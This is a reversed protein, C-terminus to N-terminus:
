LREHTKVLKELQKAEEITSAVNKLDKPTGVGISLRQLNRELDFVESLQRRTRQLLQEQGYFYSVADLRRELRELNMLPSALHAALLRSGGPSTTSDIAQLLSSAKSGSLSKALELGRWASSDIIMHDSSEVHLPARILASMGGHTFDVYDLIASAAAQESTDLTKFVDRLSRRSAPPIFSSAPRFTRMCTDPLVTDLFAVAGRPMAVKM